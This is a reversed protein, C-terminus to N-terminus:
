HRGILIALHKGGAMIWMGSEDKIKQLLQNHPLEKHNFIRANRENWIEWSVLIIMSCMGKRSHCPVASLSTWWQHLSEAQSWSPLFLGSLGISAALEERIRMSYRCHALLHLVTEPERRCLPCVVNNSWGRAQLRDAMWLRNQIALWGFLKFKPPEWVKWILTGFNTTTSGLFQARYASNVSYEGDATSCYQWVGYQWTSSLTNHMSAVTSCTLIRSGTKIKLPLM